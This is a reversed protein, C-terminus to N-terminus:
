KIKQIGGSAEIHLEADQALSQSLAAIGRGRWRAGHDDEVELEGCPDAANVIAGASGDVTVDASWHSLGSERRQITLHGGVVDFGLDAATFRGSVIRLTDSTLNNM